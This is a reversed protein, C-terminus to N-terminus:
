CEGIGAVGEGAPSAIGVAGIARDGHIGVLGAGGGEGEVGAVQGHGGGAGAATRDSRCDAHVGVVVASHHRQICDGIGAGGESAPTPVWVASVTRDRHIGVYGAGGGEGEVGQLVQGHGGGAGAATRDSRCDAHVGVVVASHHRQICDGIGAGGESAPTPVWVASVTRDRHIGVYGAGGGEGPGDVDVTDRQLRAPIQDGEVQLRHIGIGRCNEGANSSVVIQDIGPISGAGMGAAAVPHLVVVNRQGGIRERRQILGHPEPDVHEGGVGEIHGAILRLGGGDVEQIISAAPIQDPIWRRFIASERLDQTIM